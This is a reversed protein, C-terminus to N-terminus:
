SELEEEQKKNDELSFGSEYASRAVIHTVMPNIIFMLLVILLIRLSFFSLGHRIAIGVIVTLAGMTDITSAVLIRVYFNKYKLIGILGFLMFVIGIGIVINGVMDM